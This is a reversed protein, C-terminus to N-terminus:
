LCIFFFFQLYHQEHFEPDAAFDFRLSMRGIFSIMGARFGVISEEFVGIGEDVILISRALYKLPDIRELLTPQRKNGCIPITLKHDAASLSV